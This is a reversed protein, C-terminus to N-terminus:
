TSTNSDLGSFAINLCYQISIKYGFSKFRLKVVVPSYRQLVTNM